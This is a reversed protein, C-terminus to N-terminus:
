HAGKHIDRYIKNAALKLAYDNYELARPDEVILPRKHGIISGDAKDWVFVLFGIALYAAFNGAHEIETKPAPDIPVKVFPTILASLDPEAFVIYVVGEEPDVEAHRLKATISDRLKRGEALAGIVTLRLDKKRQPAGKLTWALREKAKRQAIGANFGPNPVM